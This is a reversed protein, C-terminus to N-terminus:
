FSITKDRSLLSNNTCRKAYTKLWTRFCTFACFWILFVRASKVTSHYSQWLAAEPIKRYLFSNKFVECFGCSVGKNPDSKLFTAPRFVQLKILFLGWFLDEWTFIAFNKISSIEFIIQSRSSKSKKLPESNCRGFPEVGLNGSPTLSWPKVWLDLNKNKFLCSGLGDGLGANSFRLRM